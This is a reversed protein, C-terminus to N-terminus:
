DLFVTNIKYMNSITLEEISVVEKPDLLEAMSDGYCCRLHPPLLM